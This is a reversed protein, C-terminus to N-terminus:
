IRNTNKALLVIKYNDSGNIYYNLECGIAVPFEHKKGLNYADISGGLTCYDTFALGYLESQKAHLIGDEVSGIAQGCSYHTKHHLNAYQTGEM